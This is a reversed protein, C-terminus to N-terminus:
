MFVCVFCIYWNSNKNENFGPAHTYGFYMYNRLICRINAVLRFPM